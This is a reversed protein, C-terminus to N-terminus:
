DTYVQFQASWLLEESIHPFVCSGIVCGRKLEDICLWQRGCPEADTEESPSWSEEVDSATTATSDTNETKINDNLEVTGHAFRCANGNRCIGSLWHRCVKTKYCADTSRLEDNGHAYPCSAGASCHQTQRYEVCLRTKWLDPRGQLESSDHAFSCRSGRSCKGALFGRCMRTKHFQQSGVGGIRVKPASM